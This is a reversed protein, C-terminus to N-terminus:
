AVRRRHFELHAEILDAEKKNRLASKDGQEGDATRVKAFLEFFKQQAAHGGARYTYMMCAAEATPATAYDVADSRLYRAVWEMNTQMDGKRPLGDLIAKPVGAMTARAAMEGRKVDVRAKGLQWSDVRVTPGWVEVLWKQAGMNAAAKTKKEGSDLLRQAERAMAAEAEKWRREVRLAGRLDSFKM